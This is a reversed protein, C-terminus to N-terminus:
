AQREQYLCTVLHLLDALSDLFFGRQALEAEHPIKIEFLEEIDFIIEVLSLSDIGIDALNEDGSLTKLDTSTYEGLITELEQKIDRM